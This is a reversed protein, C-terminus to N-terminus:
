IKVVVFLKEYRLLVVYVIFTFNATKKGFRQYKDIFRDRTM